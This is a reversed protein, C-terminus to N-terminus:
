SAIENSTGEGRKSRQMRLRSFFLSLYHRSLSDAKSRLRKIRTRYYGLGKRGFKPSSTAYYINEIRAIKAAARCMQCPELTIYLDCNPLYKAKLKRSAKQIVLIEAHALHSLRSETQNHATAIIRGDQVLVAGIPTENKDFATKAERLAREFFTQHNKKLSVTKVHNGM